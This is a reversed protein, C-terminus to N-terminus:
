EVREWRTTQNDKNPMATMVQILPAPNWTEAVGANILRRAHADDVNVVDGAPYVVSGILHQRKLRIHVQPEGEVIYNRESMEEDTLTFLGDDDAFTCSGEAERWFDAMEKLGGTGYEKRFQLPLGFQYCFLFQVILKHRRSQPELRELEDSLENMRGVCFGGGSNHIANARTESEVDLWDYPTVWLQGILQSKLTWILHSMRTHLRASYFISTPFGVLM